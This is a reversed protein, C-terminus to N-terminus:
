WIYTKGNAVFQVFGSKMIKCSTITAGQLVTAIDNLATAIGANVSPNGVWAVEHAFAIWRQGGLAAICAATRKLIAARNPIETVKDIFYWGGTYGYETIYIAKSSLGASALTAKLDAFRQVVPYYAGFKTVDQLADYNYM